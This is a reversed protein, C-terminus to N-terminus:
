VIICCALISTINIVNALVYKKASMTPTFPTKFLASKSFSTLKKLLTELLFRKLEECPELLLRGDHAWGM